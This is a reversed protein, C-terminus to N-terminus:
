NSIVLDHLLGCIGILLDTHNDFIDLFVWVERHPEVKALKIM